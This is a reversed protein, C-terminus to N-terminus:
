KSQIKAKLDQLKSKNMAVEEATLKKWEEPIHKKVQDRKKIWDKELWALVTRYYDKYTWTKGRSWVYLDIKYIYSKINKEGYADILKQYEEATMKVFDWYKKLEKSPPNEEWDGIIDNEKDKDKDTHKDKDKDTHTSRTSEPVGSKRTTSRTSEPVKKKERREDAIKKNRDCVNQYTKIDRDFQNKFQEFAIEVVVDDIEYDNWNHYSRMKRLLKGVQQDTMKDIVSLSDYYLLFSKKM